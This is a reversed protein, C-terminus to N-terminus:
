AAEGKDSVPPAPAPMWYAPEDYHIVTVTHRGRWETGAWSSHLRSWYRDVIRRGDLWLDVLTEDKPATEMPQWSM